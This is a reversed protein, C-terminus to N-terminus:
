QSNVLQVRENAIILLGERTFLGVVIVIENRGIQGVNVRFESGSLLNYRKLENTVRDKISDLLRQDIAYGMFQRLNAGWNLGMFEGFNCKLRIMVEQIISELNETKILDGNEINFDGDSTFRIDKKNLSGM